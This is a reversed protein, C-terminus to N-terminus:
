MALKLRALAEHFGAEFFLLPHFYAGTFFLIYHDGLPGSNVRLCGWSPSVVAQCKLKQSDSGRRDGPTGACM